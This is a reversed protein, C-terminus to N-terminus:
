QISLCMKTYKYKLGRFNENRIKYVGWNIIEENHSVMSGLDEGFCEHVFLEGKLMSSYRNLNAFLM